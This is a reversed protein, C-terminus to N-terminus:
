HQPRNQKMEETVSQVLPSPAGETLECTVGLWAPTNIQQLASLSQLPIQVPQIVPILGVSHPEVLCLSLDQVQIVVVGLLAVPQPCFLQFTGPPFGQPAPSLLFMLWSHGPPCFALPVQSTGAITHCCHSDGTSPVTLGCRSHQTWNQAGRSLVSM